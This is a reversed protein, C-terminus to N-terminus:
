KKWFLLRNSKKKSKSKASSPIVDELNCECSLAQGGCRPCREMDCSDHHYNGLRCHCDHCRKPLHKEEEKTLPTYPKANVIKGDACLFKKNICGDVKDMDGRCLNCIVM